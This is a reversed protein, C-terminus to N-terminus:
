RVVQIPILTFMLMLFDAPRQTTTALNSIIDAQKMMMSTAATASLILVQWIVKQLRLRTEAATRSLFYADGHTTFSFTVEMTGNENVIRIIDGQLNKIYYYM